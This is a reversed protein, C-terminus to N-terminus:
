PQKRRYFLMILGFLGLLIGLGVLVRQYRDILPRDMERLLHDPGIELTVDLGHGDESFVRLRYAGPETPVFAIRGGADTRGVQIPIDAGKPYIEYAEYAFGKGNPYQLSILTATATTTTYHLDHAWGPTALTALLGLGILLWRRLNM